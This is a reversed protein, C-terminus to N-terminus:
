RSDQRAAQGQLLVSHGLPPSPPPPYNHTYSTSFTPPPFHQPTRVYADHVIHQIRVIHM